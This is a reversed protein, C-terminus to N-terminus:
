NFHTFDRLDSRQVRLDICSLFVVSDMFFPPNTLEHVCCLEDDILDVM